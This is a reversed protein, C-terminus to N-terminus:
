MCRLANSFTMWTHDLTNKRSVHSMYIYNCTCLANNILILILILILIYVTANYKASASSQLPNVYITDAANSTKSLMFVCIIRICKELKALQINYSGMSKM